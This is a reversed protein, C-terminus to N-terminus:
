GSASGLIRAMREAARRQMAPTLHAYADATTSLDAHPTTTPSAADVIWEAM